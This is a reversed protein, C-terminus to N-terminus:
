NKMFHRFMGSVGYKELNDYVLFCYFDVSM